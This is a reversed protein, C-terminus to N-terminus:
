VNKDDKLRIGTKKLIETSFLLDSSIYLESIKDKMLEVKNKVEELTKGHVMAFLNYNWDPKIQPREYCHSVFGLEKLTKGVEDLKGDKIEWVSMANYLYGLKYHNTAIANKRVFGLSYLEELRNVVEEESCNLDNAIAQYPRKSIQIGNQTLLILKKDFTSIEKGNIKFDEM